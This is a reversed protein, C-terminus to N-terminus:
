KKDEKAWRDQDAKKKEWYEPKITATSSVGTDKSKVKVSLKGTKKNKQAKM